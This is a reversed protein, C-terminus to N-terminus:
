RAGIRQLSRAPLAIRGADDDADAADELETALAARARRAAELAAALTEAREMASDRAATVAASRAEWVAREGSRGQLWGAAFLTLALGCITATRSM